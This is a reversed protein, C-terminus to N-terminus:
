SEAAESERGMAGLARRIAQWWTRARGEQGADFSHQSYRAEVFADTLSALDQRAEPLRSSLVHGYEYPTQDRVRPIGVRSARHLTNLYYHLIRQRPSRSLLRPARIGASASQREGEDESALRRVATVAAAYQRRLHALLARLAAVLQLERLAELIEPHDRLYSWVVYGVLALTAAWFVATRAVELWPPITLPVAVQPAVNRRPVPRLPPRRLAGRGLLSEFLGSIFWLLLSVLTSVLWAIITLAYMLANVITAGTELLGGAYGIPIILALFVALGILAASYGVWRRSVGESAEIGQAQWQRRLRSLHMQGLMALGVLFYTLVNGVLRPVPPRELELVASIGIRTLGAAIMLLAGGWFFRATVSRAFRSSDRRWSVPEAIRDLDRMTATASLWVGLVMISALVDGVTVISRPQAPWGRLEAAVSQWSSGVFSGLKVLVLLLAIEIARFRLADTGRLRRREVLRYSYCAELAAVVSVIVLYGSSRGGAVMAALEVLALAVCGAMAAIAVPRFVNREWKMM